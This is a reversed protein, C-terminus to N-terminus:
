LRPHAANGNRGPGPLSTDRGKHMWYTGVGAALVGATLAIPRLEVFRAVAVTAALGILMAFLRASRVEGDNRIQRSVLGSLWCSLWVTSFCLGTLPADTPTVFASFELLGLLLVFGTASIWPLGLSQNARLAEDTAPVAYPNPAEKMKLANGPPTEHDRGRYNAAMLVVEGRLCIHSICQCEGEAKAVIASGVSRAGSDLLWSHDIWGQGACVFLEGLVSGFLWM